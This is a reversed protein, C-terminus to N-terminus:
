GNMTVSSGFDKQLMKYFHPQGNAAMPFSLFHNTIFGPSTYPYTGARIRHPGKKEENMACYWEMKVFSYHVARPAMVFQRDM